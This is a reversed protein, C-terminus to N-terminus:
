SGGLTHRRIVATQEGSSKKENMLTISQISTIKIADSDNDAFMWVKHFSCSTQLKM